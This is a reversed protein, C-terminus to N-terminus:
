DDCDVTVQAAEGVIKPPAGSTCVTATATPGTVTVAAVAVTLASADVRAGDEVAIVVESGDGALGVHCADRARVEAAIATLETAEVVSASEAEIALAASAGTVRVVAHDSAFVGHLAPVEMTVRPTVTLETRLNPDVGISLVGDGHVETFLRALANAEGAVRLTVDAEPDLEPRVKVEVEFADFVEIATFPPVARVVEAPVGDGKLECSALLLLAFIETRM